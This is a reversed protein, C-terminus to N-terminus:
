TSSVSTVVRETLRYENAWSVCCGAPQFGMNLGSTFASDRGFSITLITFSHRAVLPLDPKLLSLPFHLSLCHVRAQLFGTIFQILEFKIQRNESAACM